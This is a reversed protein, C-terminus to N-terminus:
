VNSVAGSIKKLCDIINLSKYDKKPIIKKPVLSKKWKRDYVPVDISLSSLPLNAVEKGSFNLVLNKTNTTKGIIAFDLNWKSFIKKANEEKGSKLILLMREQSESLMMEYPTM